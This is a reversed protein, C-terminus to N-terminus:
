YAPCTDDWALFDDKCNPKRDYRVCTYTANPTNQPLTKLCEEQTVIPGGALVFAIRERDSGVQYWGPGAWQPATASVAAALVISALKM